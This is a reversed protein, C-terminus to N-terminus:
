YYELSNQWIIVGIFRILGIILGSM